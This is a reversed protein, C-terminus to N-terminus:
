GQSLTKVKSQRAQGQKVKPRNHKLIYPSKVTVTSRADQDCCKMYSLCLFYVVFVMKNKEANTKNM